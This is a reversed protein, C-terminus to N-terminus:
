IFSIRITKMNFRCLCNINEFFINCYTFLIYNISTLLYYVAQFDFNYQSFLNNGQNFLKNLLFLYLKTNLFHVFGKRM